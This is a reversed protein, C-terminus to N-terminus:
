RHLLKQMAAKLLDRGSRNNLREIETRMQEIARVSEAQINQLAIMNSEGSQLLEARLNAHHEFFKSREYLELLAQMFRGDPTSALATEREKASIPEIPQRSVLLFMDYANFIAQEFIIYPAGLRYFFEQISRKSFLHLHEMPKLQNAFFLKKEVIDAYSTGEVYTPTQILLLGNPKLLSLAKSMTQAPDPLHEIVDMLVIVDLSGTEIDQNELPGQYVPIGFMNKSFEVLWPSLELGAADFGARRFFAVLGGHASGLELINAPPLKYRLLAESWFLIRETLDARARAELSPYGYGQLLHKLYYDKSYLEGADQVNTLDGAPWDHLVLTGCNNCLLYDPSFNLLDQNGCWCINHAAM